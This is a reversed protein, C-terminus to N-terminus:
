TFILIDFCAESIVSCQGGAGVGFASEVLPKDPGMDMTTVLTDYTGKPSGKDCVRGFGVIEKKKVGRTMRKASKVVSNWM